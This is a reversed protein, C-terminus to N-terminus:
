ARPLLDIFITIQSIKNPVYITKKTYSPLPVITQIIFHDFGIEIM